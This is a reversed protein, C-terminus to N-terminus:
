CLRTKFYLFLNRSLSTLVYLLPIIFYKDPMKISDLWPIIITGVEVPMRIIVFYLSSIIPLQLLGVFCGLMSKASQSYYEEVKSELKLKDNKYKEKLEAIKKSLTQQQAMSIKQKISIPLLIIRVLVTLLIISIGWDGTFNFLRHLLNNLLNFIINM